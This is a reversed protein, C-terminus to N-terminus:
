SVLQCHGGDAVASGAKLNLGMCPRPLSNLHVTAQTPVEEPKGCRVILDSGAARLSERLDAIADLVFQARYPGTTSIGHSSKSYERPDFCYVQASYQVLVCLEQM